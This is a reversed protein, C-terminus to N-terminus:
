RASTSNNLFNPLHHEKFETYKALDERIGVQNLMAPHLIKRLEETVAIGDQAAWSKLYELVVQDMWLSYMIKRNPTGFRVTRKKREHPM